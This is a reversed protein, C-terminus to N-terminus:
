YGQKIRNKLWRASNKNLKGHKTVRNPTDKIWRERWELNNMGLDHDHRGYHTIDAANELDDLTGNEEAEKEIQEIQLYDDDSLEADPDMLQIYLDLNPIKGHKENLSEKVLKAKM